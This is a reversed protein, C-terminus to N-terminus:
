DADDAVALTYLLPLFHEVTPHAVQMLTGLSAAEAIEGFRRGTIADAM